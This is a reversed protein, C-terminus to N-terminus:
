FGNSIALNSILIKAISFLEFSEMFIAYEKLCKYSMTLSVEFSIFGFAYEPRNPV